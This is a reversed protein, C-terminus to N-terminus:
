SKFNIQKFKRIDSKSKCDNDCFILKKDDLTTVEVYLSPVISGCTNCIKEM